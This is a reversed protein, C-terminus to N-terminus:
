GGIIVVGSRKGFTVNRRSSMDPFGDFKFDELYIDGNDDFFHETGFGFVRVHDGDFVYAYDTTRSNDWPWPWGMDPSTFDDRVKEVQQVQARFEEVTKADVLESEQEWEYGDWAVSGLWEANEGIGIYFDAKTGM